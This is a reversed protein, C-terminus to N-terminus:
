RGKPKDPTGLFDLGSPSQRMRTLTAVMLVLKMRKGEFQVVGHDDEEKGLGCAANGIKNVTM